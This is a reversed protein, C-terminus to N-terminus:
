MSQMQKLWAAKEVFEVHSHDWKDQMEQPINPYVAKLEEIDQVAFDHLKMAHDLEQVSMSKYINYRDIAGPVNQGKAKYELAKEMYEKSSELEDAIGDVYKKIKNM